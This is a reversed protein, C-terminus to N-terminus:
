VQSGRSGTAQPAGTRCARAYRGLVRRVHLRALRASRGPATPVGAGEAAVPLYQSVVGRPLEVADLSAFLRGIAERVRPVPLYYRARDSLGFQRQLRLADEDASTYYAQWHRPDERMAQELAARVGSLREPRQRGRLEREVDELAFLAERLAFTLEPGVKLVAFHDEVLAALADEAQYDTSHAEFVLREESESWARLQAVAERRYRFVRDDGFEVGPQVVQALVREFARELGRRAFAARTLEFGRRAHAVSSVGPGEREDKQGGPPPVETGIVYVPEPLGPAREPRAAEAAAALEATREAAVEDALAGEPDSACRMSADLHIKEYGARVYHRVLEAAREMAAAAALQTWPSPGLHDGGLVLREAPLGAERALHRAFAVFADPRMATYGGDQNVQNCTSEVLVSSGDVLAQEFAARLVEEHASCVSAIGRPEGRKQARVVETLVSRGAAAGTPSSRTLAAM